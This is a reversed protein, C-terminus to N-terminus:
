RMGKLREELIEVLETEGMDKLIKYIAELTDRRTDAVLQSDEETMAEDLERNTMEGGAVKTPPKRRIEKIVKEWNM